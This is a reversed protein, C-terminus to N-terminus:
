QKRGRTVHTYRDADGALRVARRCLFLQFPAFPIPHTKQAGLSPNPGAFEDLILMLFFFM